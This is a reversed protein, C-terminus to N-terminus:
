CIICGGSSGESVVDQFYKELLGSNEAHEQMWTPAKERFTTVATLIEAKCLNWIAFIDLYSPSTTKEIKLKVRLQYAFHFLVIAQDIQKQSPHETNLKLDRRIDLSKSIRYAPLLDLHSMEIAKQHKLAALNTDLFTDTYHSVYESEASPKDAHVAETVAAKVAGSKEEEAKSKKVDPAVVSLPNRAIGRRIHLHMELPLQSGESPHAAPSSEAAHVTVQSSAQLADQAASQEIPESALRSYHFNVAAM